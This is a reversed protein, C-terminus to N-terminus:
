HGNTKNLIMQLCTKNVINLDSKFSWTKIYELDYEIRKMTRTKNEEPDNVDGRYGNIQALGTIGPKVLHRRDIDKIFSSYKNHFAIAHPRPGVISMDGLLVNIFQPLEDLNTKRLFRGLRTIRPDEYSTPTYKLNKQTVYMTRFKFCNFIEGNFGIRKQVFFVPGKSSIKVLLALIPFLWTFLTIMVIVSFFIDFVRKFRDFAAQEALIEFQFQAIGKEYAIELVRDRTPYDLEANMTVLDRNHRM